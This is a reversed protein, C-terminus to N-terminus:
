LVNQKGKLAWDFMEEKTMGRAQLMHDAITYAMVVIVKGTMEPLNSDNVSMNAALCCAFKDRFEMREM